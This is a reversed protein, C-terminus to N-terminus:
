AAYNIQSTGNGLNSLTHNVQNVFDVMGAGESSFKLGLLPGPERMQSRKNSEPTPGSLAYIYYHSFSATM